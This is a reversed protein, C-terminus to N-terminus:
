WILSPLFTIIQPFLYFILITLLDMSLFPLSGKIIEEVPVDVISKVAYLNVGMPPTIVAMEVYKVCIIGFWISDFGLKLMLPYIIPLTLVLMGTGGIFCGLFLYLLTVIVFIVFKSVNLGLIFNSFDTTFGSLVLFRSLLIASVLIILLMGTSKVTDRVAHWLITPNKKFRGLAIALLLLIFAGVAGAETPTTWGTYIGGMIGIILVVVIWLYRISYIREKWSYKKQITSMRLSRVYIFIIYILATVIGPIIGAIILKAISQDVLLGYICITLSPPILAAISGGAAVVGTSLRDSYGAKQMAPIASKGVVICAAQSSGSCAAFIANAVEVSIALGGNLHGLWKRAVEFIDSLLGSYYGFHGMLIFMPIVSWTYTSMYTLIVSRTISVAVEFGSVYIIGVFSVACLAYGIPVGLIILLIIISLGISGTLM